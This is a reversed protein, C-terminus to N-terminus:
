KLRPWAGLEVEGPMALSLVRDGQAQSLCQCQPYNLYRGIWNSDRICM